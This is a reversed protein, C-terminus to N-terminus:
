YTFDLHAWPTERNFVTTFFFLYGLFSPLEASRLTAMVRVRYRTKKELKGLPYLPYDEIETLWKIAEEEDRTTREVTEPGQGELTFLYLKRVPDYALSYSLERDRVIKEGFISGKQTLRIRYSFRFPVGGRIVERAKEDFSVQLSASLLVDDEGQRIGLNSIRPPDPGAAPWAPPALLFFLLSFALFASRKM